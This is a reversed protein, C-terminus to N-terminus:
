GPAPRPSRHHDTRAAAAACPKTATNNTVVGGPVTGVVVFNFTAGAALECTPSIDTSNDLAGDGNADAHIRVTTFTSDGGETSSRAFTDVGKGTNILTHPFAAQGGANARRSGSATLTLSAVQQVITVRPGSVYAGSLKAACTGILWM